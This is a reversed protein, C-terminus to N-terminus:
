WKFRTAKNRGPCGSVGMQSLTALVGHAKNSAVRWAEARLNGQPYQHPTEDTHIEM